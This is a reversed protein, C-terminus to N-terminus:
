CFRGLTVCGSKTNTRAIILLVNGNPKEIVHAPELLFLNSGLDSVDGRIELPFAM